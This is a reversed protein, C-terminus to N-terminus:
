EIVKKGKPESTRISGKLLDGLEIEFLNPYIMYRFTLNKIKMIIETESQMLKETVKKLVEKKVSNSVNKVPAGNYNVTSIIGFVMEMLKSDYQASKKDAAVDSKLYQQEKELIMNAIKVVKVSKAIDDELIVKVDAAEISYLGNLSAESETTYKYLGFLLKLIADITSEQLLFKEVETAYTDTLEHSKIRKISEDHRSKKVVGETKTEDDRVAKAIKKVVKVKLDSSKLRPKSEKEEKKKLEERMEHELKTMETAKRKREKDSITKFFETIMRQSRRRAPEVPEVSKVPEAVESTKEIVLEETGDDEETVVVRHTGNNGTVVTTAGSNLFQNVPVPQEMDMQRLQTPQTSITHMSDQCILNVGQQPAPLAQYRNNQYYELQSRMNSFQRQANNLVQAQQEIQWKLEENKYELQAKDNGISKLQSKLRSNEIEYEKTGAQVAVQYGKNQEDLNKYDSLLQKFENELAKYQGTVNELKEEASNGRIQLQTESNRLTEIKKEYELAKTKNTEKLKELEEKLEKNAKVVEELRVNEEGVSVGLKYMRKNERDLQHDTREQMTDLVKHRQTEAENYQKTKAEVEAKAKDLETTLQSIQNSQATATKEMFEIQAKMKDNEISMTANKSLLEELEAKSNIFKAGSTRINALTRDFAKFLSDEDLGTFDLIEASSNMKASYDVLSTISSKLKDKFGEQKKLLVEREKEAATAKAKERTYAGQAASYDKKLKAIDIANQRM